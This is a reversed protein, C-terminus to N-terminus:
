DIKKKTKTTEQEIDGRDARAGVGMAVWGSVWSDFRFLSGVVDLPYVCMGDVGGGLRVGGRREGDCRASKTHQPASRTLGGWAAGAACAVGAGWGCERSRSRHRYWRCSRGQGTGHAHLGDDAEM